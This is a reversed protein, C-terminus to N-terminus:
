LSAKRLEKYGPSTIVVTFTGPHVDAFIFDGNSRVPTSVVVSTQQNILKVEANVVIGNSQDVIHGSITGSSTQAEMQLAYSSLTIVVAVLRLFSKMNTVGQEFMQKNSIGVAVVLPIRRRRAWMVVYVNGCTCRSIDSFYVATM